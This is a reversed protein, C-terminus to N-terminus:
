RKKTVKPKTAPKTPQTNENGRLGDLRRRLMNAYDYVRSKEDEPLQNVEFNIREMWEDTPISEPLLGAARYVEEVPLGLAKAVARLREETPKKGRNIWGWIVQRNIGAANALDAHGWKRRTMEQQLWESFEIPAPMTGVVERTLTKVNMSSIINTDNFDTALM